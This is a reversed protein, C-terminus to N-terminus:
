RGLHRWDECNITEPLEDPGQALSREEWTKKELYVKRAKLEVRDCCCPKQCLVQKAHLRMANINKKYLPGAMVSNPDQRLWMFEVKLPTGYAHPIVSPLSRLLHESNCVVASTGACDEVKVKPYFDVNYHLWFLVISCRKVTFLGVPDVLNVPDNKVALYPLAIHSHISPEQQEQKSRGRIHQTLFGHEGIPDRSVWRGFEPDYYRYGYYVLRPTDGSTGVDAADHYKTSFRFPNDDAADGSQSIIAGFPAEYSLALVGIPPNWTVRTSSFTSTSSYLYIDTALMCDPYCSPKPQSSFLVHKATDQKTQYGCGSPAM